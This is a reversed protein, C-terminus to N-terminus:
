GQPAITATLGDLGDALLIQCALRSTENRVDTSDLLDHEDQSIPELGELFAPGVFVHCTACSCSGGCLALLEDIGAARIAEMLSIGPTIAIRHVSADRATVTIQAM